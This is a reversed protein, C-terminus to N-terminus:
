WIQAQRMRGGGVKWLKVRDFGGLVLYSLADWGHDWGSDKDSAHQDGGQVTLNRLSKITQKCRPHIFLRRTGEADKVM